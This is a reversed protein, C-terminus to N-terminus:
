FKVHVRLAFLSVPGRDKNYAPNLVFQYDPSLFFHNDHLMISYFAEFIHERNYNLKGDGTMFGIGGNALYKQHNASIGNSVFAAGWTDNGRKWKTGKGNLGLSISNDIETFMWTENKGDNYSVRAFAGTNNTVQQALNLGVGWKTNGVIRTSTIDPLQNNNTAQLVAQTYNGMNAKNQYALLTLCGKKIKDWRYEFEIQKALANKLDPNMQSANATRPVMAASARIAWKELGLEVIGGWTYGRTNAAYDYAGYGMLSWNLFQTRPDHSYDNNDFFDSMAFRGGIVRVYKEPRLGALENPGEEFAIKKDSIAFYHDIYLRGVYVQPKPNGVRFTEGNAYGALGTAKSLGAGGAIEPNFYLVTNKLLRVGLFLTTTLSTAGPESPQLSNTGQYPSNFKTHYQTVVTQQFHIQVKSSDFGIQAKIKNIMTLCFVLSLIIKPQKIMLHMM